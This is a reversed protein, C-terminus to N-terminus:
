YNGRHTRRTRMYRKRHMEIRQGKGADAALLAALPHKKADQDDVIRFLRIIIEDTRM